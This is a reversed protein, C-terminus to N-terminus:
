KEHKLFFSSLPKKKKQALLSAVLVDKEIFYGEAKKEDELFSDLVFIKQTYKSQFNIMDGTDIFVCHGSSLFQSINRNPYHFFLSFYEPYSRRTDHGLTYYVDNWRKRGDLIWIVDGYFSNRARVDQPSIPSHQMEIVTGNPLKIDAIHWVGNKKIVVEQWESPFMDQWRSHWSTMPQYWQDCNEISTHSWHHTYVEGMKAILSDGCAPCVADIGRRPTIRENNQSIAFKM